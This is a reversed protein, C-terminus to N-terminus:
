MRGYVVSLIHGDFIRSERQLSDIRQGRYEFGDPLIKVQGLNEAFGTRIIKLFSEKLTWRVLLEEDSLTDAFAPNEEPFAVKLFSEKHPFSRIRELDIGLGPAPDRSVAAAAYHGAHSISVPLDSGEIFPAGGEHACLRRSEGIIIKSLPSFAARGSCWEIQRKFSRFGEFRADPAIGWDRFLGSFSEAPLPRLDEEASPFYHRSILPIHITCLSIPGIDFLAVADPVPLTECPM